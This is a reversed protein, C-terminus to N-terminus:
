AAKREDVVKRVASILDEIQSVYHTEFSENEKAVNWEEIVRGLQNETILLNGDLISRLISANTEWDSVYQV